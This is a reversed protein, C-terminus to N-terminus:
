EPSHAPPEGYVNTGTQGRMSFLVLVIITGVYPVLNVLQWWGSRGTDHLRRAGVAISPILMLVMFIGSLIGLGLEGSFKGLFGDLVALFMFILLTMLFFGWYEPRSARGDLKGYNRFCYLFWNM